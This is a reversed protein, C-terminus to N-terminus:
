HADLVEGDASLEVERDKGDAGRYKVEYHITGNAYTEKEVERITAGPYAKTFGDRVGQPLATESIKEHKEDARGGGSSKCGASIALAAALCWVIQKNM